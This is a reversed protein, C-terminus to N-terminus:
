KRRIIESVLAVGATLVINVAAVVEGSWGFLLAGLNLLALLFALTLGSVGVPNNITPM